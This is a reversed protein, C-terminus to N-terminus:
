LKPPEVPPVEPVPAPAPAPAIIKEEMIPLPPPEQNVPVSPVIEPQPPAVLAAPAVKISAPKKPTVVASKAIGISKPKATEMANSPREITLQASPTSDRATDVSLNDKAIPAVAPEVVSSAATNALTSPVSGAPAFSKPSLSVANFSVAEHGAYLNVGLAIGGVAAIMAAAIWLPQKSKGSFSGAYNGRVVRFDDLTEAAPIATQYAFRPSNIQASQM